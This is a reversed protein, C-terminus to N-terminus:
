IARVTMMAQEVAVWDIAMLARPADDARCKQAVEQLAMLRSSKTAGVFPTGAADSTRAEIRFGPTPGDDVRFFVRVILPTGTCDLEYTMNERERFQQMIRARKESAARKADERQQEDEKASTEQALVVRLSEGDFHAGDLDEVARRAESETKMTVYAMVRPRGAERVVISVESVEGAQAFRTRLAAETPAEPLNTVYLRNRM